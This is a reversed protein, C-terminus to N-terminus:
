QHRLNLEAESARVYLPVLDDNGRGQALMSAGAFGIFAARPHLLASPAMRAPPHQAFAAWGAMIGPGVLLTPEHISQALQKASLALYDSTRRWRGAEFCYFAAYVQQKRADLLCCLPLDTPTAQAALGDLTPVGLLPLNAGMAIGKAAAMGIRLGTFSGPGLSVAVGDLDAWAVGAAEMMAGVSGLLRRSHTAEPQLTYEALVRGADMGGKTLSVGGCGTATEIALILVDAM